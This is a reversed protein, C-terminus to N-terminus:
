KLYDIPHCVADAGQAESVLKEIANYVEIQAPNGYCLTETAFGATEANQFYDLCIKVAEVRSM